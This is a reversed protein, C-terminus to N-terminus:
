STQRSSAGVSNSHSRDLIRRIGTCVADIQDDTLNLAGPLNIGRASIDYARPNRPKYKVESGPYAPLCSLPYFFPRAPIGIEQLKDIADLKSMQHSKGFVLATIWVSNYVDKPEANFEIDEIDALREKYKQWIARKMGVLEDLRQFQAYGLAAQLNFPMYKYTVEYNYYMPGGPKRGHDRLVQCRKYLDEDDLILMGGEGTVLTKTRHFSFVSGIGFKGARTGHYSSGLSEASDEILYIGHRKAVETLENMLPMNGFLDVAIIAKTKPTISREVSEPDLCWNVPDIDCFVPTARLYTIPAASAIWTCEPVIVEDGEGVGLATLLLHISTTCNPTMLGFARDHYAAFEKQFTEVYYYPKEYWGNRMADAVIEIEHETISPGAMYIPEM